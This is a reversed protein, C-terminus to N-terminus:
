SIKSAPKIHFASLILNISVWEALRAVYWLRACSSYMCICYVGSIIIIRGGVGKLMGLSTNM